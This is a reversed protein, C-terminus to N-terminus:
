SVTIDVYDGAIASSLVKITVNKYTVSEGPQLTSVLRYQDNTKVKNYLITIAGQGSKITGDVVYALIGENSPDISNLESARRNEVVLVQTESIRVFVAKTGSKNESLPTILQITKSKKTSPLCKTQNEEFWGLLFKHWALFEPATTTADGMLDWTPIAFSGYFSGTTNFPHMLGLLHGSEHVLWDYKNLQDAYERIPGFTANTILKGDVTRGYGIAGEYGILTTSPTVVNVFDYQSFDITPDALNIADDVLGQPNANPKAPASHPTDLNYTLVSKNIHFIQEVIDIKFDLKGYSTIAYFKEATPKQQTKWIRIPNGDDKLDSFDVFLVIGKTKGVSPIFIKPQPFGLSQGERITSSIKCADIATYESDASIPFTKALARSTSQTSLTNTTQSLPLQTVVKSQASWVQKKGIKVCYYSKGAIHTISNIKACAAGASPAASSLAPAFCLFLTSAISIVKIKM